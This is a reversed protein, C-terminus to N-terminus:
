RIMKFPLIYGKQEAVEKLLGIHNDRHDNLTKLYADIHEIVREIVIPRDEPELKDLESEITQKGSCDILARAIKDIRQYEISDYSRYRKDNAELSKEYIKKRRNHEYQRYKKILPKFDSKRLADLLKQEEGDKLDWKLSAEAIKNLLNSFGYCNSSLANFQILLKEFPHGVFQNLRHNEYTGINHRTGDNHIFQMYARTRNFKVDYGRSNNWSMMANPNHRGSKNCHKGTKKDIHPCKQTGIKKSAL